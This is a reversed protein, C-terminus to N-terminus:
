LVRNICAGLKQAGASSSGVVTRKCKYETQLYLSSKQIWSVDYKKRILKHSNIQQQKPYIVIQSIRGNWFSYTRKNKLKAKLERKSEQNMKQTMDPKNENSIGIM